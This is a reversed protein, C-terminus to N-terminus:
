RREYDFFASFEMSVPHTGGTRGQVDGYAGSMCDAMLFDPNYQCMRLQIIDMMRYCRKQGDSLALLIRLYDKYDLGQEEEESELDERGIQALNELAFNWNEKTKLLAVKGGSLLKKVDSLAEAHAWGAALLYKAGKVLLPNATWGLLLLAAVEAQGMKEQDGLLYLLNMGQRMLLIRNLVAYLNEEETGKGALVYEIEYALGGDQKQETFCNGNELIYENFLLARVPSTLIDVGEAGAPLPSQSTVSPLQQMEIKGGSLVAGEPKVLNWTGRGMLRELSGLGSELLSEQVEENTYGANEETEERGWDTGDFEEQWEEADAAADIGLGLVDLEELLSAAFAGGNQYKLGSLANDVFYVGGKEAAKGVPLIEARQLQFPFFYSGKKWSGTGPSVEYQLYEYFDESAAEGTDSVFLLGYIELLERSYGAFVSELASETGMRVMAKTGLIRATELMTGTMGLFLLLILSLFVTIQGPIKRDTCM